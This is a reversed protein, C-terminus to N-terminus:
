LPPDIVETVPTTVAAVMEEDIARMQAWYPSLIAQIDKLQWQEDVDDEAIRVELHDALERMHLGQLVGQIQAAARSGGRTGFTVFSVPKERWEWYLFDLANKLVGPYGWNYQPFVFIFGDYSSILRSWVRTHEHEYHNQAAMVPEDLFPLNVEALDVLEYRLPSGMQATDLVWEAIGGTIRGPRTSGIVIAVRKKLIEIELELEEEQMADSELEEEQMADSELEVEPVADITAM